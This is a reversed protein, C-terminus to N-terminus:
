APHEGNPTKLLTVFIADTRRHFAFPQIQNATAEEDVLSIAYSDGASMYYPIQHASSFPVQIWEVVAYSNSHAIREPPM